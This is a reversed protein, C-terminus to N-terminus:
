RHLTHMCVRTSLEVDGFSNINGPLNFSFVLAVKESLLGDAMLTMAKTQMGSRQTESKYTVLRIRDGVM